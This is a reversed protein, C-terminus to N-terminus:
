PKARSFALEMVKTNEEGIALDHVEEVFHDADKWRLVYKVMKDNEGTLYEDMTGYYIMTKGDQALKGQASLMFTNMGDITTRVYAKKFNDYGAIGFAKFPQEMFTGSLETMTFRGEILWSTVAKSKGVTSMPGPGMATKWECDWTGLYDALKQHAESPETFQRAQEFMKKMEESMQPPEQQTAAAPAAWPMAAACLAAGAVFAVVHSSNM